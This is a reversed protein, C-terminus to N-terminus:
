MQIDECKEVPANTTCSTNRNNHFWSSSGTTKCDQTITTTCIHCIRTDRNFIATTEKKGMDANLAAGGLYGTNSFKAGGLETVSKGGQVLDAATLGAGVDYSIAYAPMLPTEPTALTM